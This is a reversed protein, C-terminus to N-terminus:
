ELQLRHGGLRGPESEGDAGTELLVIEARRKLDGGAGNGGALANRHADVAARMESFIRRGSNEDRNRKAGRAGVAGNEDVGTGSLGEGM